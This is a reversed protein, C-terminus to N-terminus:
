QIIYQFHFGSHNYPYEKVCDYLLVMMLLSMTKTSGNGIDLREASDAADTM